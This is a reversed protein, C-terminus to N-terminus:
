AVAIMEEDMISVVEPLARRFAEVCEPDFQDGSRELIYDIARERPWAIKYPRITTLADFTDAVAVIRASLPIMEGSANNPYGRGNWHEHHGKAIDAALQLLPSKSESLIQGGVVTHRQMVVFEDDSLPGAKLLVADPIAVKGIDHMPSALRIDACVDSPLGLHRAILESYAGVRRTHSGLESDKYSAALSLIDVIEIDRNRLDALAIEVEGRLWEAKDSLKANAVRLDSSTQEQEAAALRMAHLQRRLLWLLVTISVILALIIM